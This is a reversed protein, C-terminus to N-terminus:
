EFISKYEDKLYPLIEDTLFLVESDGMAYPAIEYIGWTFTLGKSTIYFNNNELSLEDLNFYSEKDKATRYLIFKTSKKMFEM